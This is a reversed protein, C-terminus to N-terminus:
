KEKKTESLEKTSDKVNNKLILKMTKKKQLIWKEKKLYVLFLCIDQIVVTSELYEQLNEMLLVLGRDLKLKLVMLSSMSRFSSQFYKGGEAPKLVMLSSM